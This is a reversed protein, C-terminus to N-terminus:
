RYKNVLDQVLENIENPTYCRSMIYEEIFNTKVVKRKEILNKAEKVKGLIYSIIEDEELSKLRYEFSDLEEILIDRDKKYVKFDKCGLLDDIFYQVAIDTSKMNSNYNLSFLVRDFHERNERLYIGEETKFITLIIDMKEDTFDLKRVIEIDGLHREVLYWEKYSRLIDSSLNRNRYSCIDRVMQAKKRNIINLIKNVKKSTQTQFCLQSEEIPIVKEIDESIMHFKHIDRSEIVYAETISNYIVLKIKIVVSDRFEAKANDCDLSTSITKVNNNHNGPGYALKIEKCSVKRFGM